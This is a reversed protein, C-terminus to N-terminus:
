QFEGKQKTIPNIPDEIYPMYTEYVRGTLGFAKYMSIMTRVAKPCGARNEINWSLKGEDIAQNFEAFNKKSFQLEHLRAQLREKFDGMESDNTAGIEYSLCAKAYGYVYGFANMDRVEQRSAAHATISMCIVMITVMSLTVFLRAKSM